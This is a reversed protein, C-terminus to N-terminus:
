EWLTTQRVLQWPAPTNTAEATGAHVTTCSLQRGAMQAMNNAANAADTSRSCELHLLSCICVGEQLLQIGSAAM